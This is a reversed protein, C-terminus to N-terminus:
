LLRLKALTLGMHYTYHWKDSTDVDTVSYKSSGVWNIAVRYLDTWKMVNNLDLYPVKGHTM